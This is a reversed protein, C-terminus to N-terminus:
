VGVAKHQARTVEDDEFLDHFLDCHNIAPLNADM